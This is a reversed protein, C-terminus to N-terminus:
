DQQLNEQTSLLECEQEIHWLLRVSTVRGSRSYHQAVAQKILPLQAAIGIGTAFSVISRYSATDVAQGYPGDIAVRPSDHMALDRTFGLRPEVLLSITSALGPQGETWWCIAFPHRQMFRLYSMNLTTFYVHLNALGHGVSIPRSLFVTIIVARGAPSIRARAIGSGLTSSRWVSRTLRLATLVTFVTIGCLLAIHVVKDNFYVWLCYVVLVGLLYHVLLVLEHFRGPFTLTTM